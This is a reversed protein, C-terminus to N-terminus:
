ESHFGSCMFDLTAIKGECVTCLVRQEAVVPEGEDVVRIRYSVYLRDGVAGSERRLIQADTSSEFWSGLLATAAESGSAERFGPPVIARFRVDRAMSREVEAFDLRGLADVFEDAASRFAIM